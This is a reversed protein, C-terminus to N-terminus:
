TISLSNQIMQFFDFNNKQMVKTQHLAIQTFSIFVVEVIIGLDRPSCSSTYPEHLFIHFPFYFGPGAIQEERLTHQPLPFVSNTPTALLHKAQISARSHFPALVTCQMSFWSCFYPYGLSSRPYFCIPHSKYFDVSHDRIISQQVWLATGQAVMKLYVEQLLLHFCFSASVRFWVNKLTQFLPRMHYIEELIPVGQLLHFLISILSFLPSWFFM